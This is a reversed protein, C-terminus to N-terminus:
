GGFLQLVLQSKMNAQAIMANSSQLIVQMSTFTKMEKAFDLENTRAKMAAQQVTQEDIINVKAELQMVQGGMRAMLMNMNVMASQMLPIAAAAMAMTSGISFGNLLLAASNMSYTSVMIFQSRGVMISFTKAASGVSYLAIDNYRVEAVLSIINQKLAIYEANMEKRQDNNIEESASRHVLEDMRLMINSIEMMVQQAIELVGLGNSVHESAIGYERYMVEMDNAVVWESGANPTPARLGSSLRALSRNFQTDIKKFNLYADMSALNSRVLM